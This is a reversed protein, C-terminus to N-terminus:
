EDRKGAAAKARQTGLNVLLARKAKAVIADREYSRITNKLWRQHAQIAKLDDREDPNLYDEFPWRNVSM